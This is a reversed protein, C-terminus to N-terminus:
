RPVAPLLMPPGGIPSAMAGNLEAPFIDPLNQNGYRPTLNIGGNTIERASVNVDAWIEAGSPLKAAYKEITGAAGGRASQLAVRSGRTVVAQLLVRNLSTDVWNHAALFIHSADARIPLANEPVSLAKRIASLENNVYGPRRLLKAIVIAIGNPLANATDFPALGSPDSYKYPDNRNWVYPKQSMPDHVNGLLIDPTTWTGAQPDYTRVGQFTNQGDSIGDHKPMTLMGGRGIAHTNVGFTAGQFSGSTGCTIAANQFASSSVTSASGGTHCGYIQGNMDRDWVTLPTAAGPVYDAFDAIKIDNIQGSANMTFLLDDDDWYLSDYQFDTPQPNANALVASTSGIQFPHGIAGWRYGLSQAYGTKGTQLWPMVVGLIHDEADYSKTNTYTTGSDSNSGFTATQQRGVPDYGFSWGSDNQSCKQAGGCTNGSEYGNPFGQLANFSYMATKPTSSSGSVATQIRTGNAYLSARGSSTDAVLEGRSTYSTQVSRSGFFATGNWAYFGGGLQGGEPNYTIGTEYFGPSNTQQVLGYSTPTGPGTYTFTDATQGTTDSRSTLRRGGTYNFTFTSGGAVALSRLLGDPQYTYALASTLNQSPTSIDLSSRKGDAAYHYTITANQASAVTEYRTTKRGDADYADTITGVGNSAWTVRGDEDYSFQQTTSSLVNFTTQITSGRPDYTLTQCETKANCKQSLFGNQGGGDYTNTVPMLATGTNRYATKTRDLADFETGATDTWVPNGTGTSPGAVSGAENWQPNTVGAPLLEQTKFLGGYAAYSASSGITLPTGQAGQQTLDYLYRTTWPFTYFDSPDTPQQVQVLRDAGDYWKQTVGPGNYHHTESIQNGDLDYQFQTSVSAAAESPSQTSMPSGDPFYTKWNVIASGSIGATKSCASNTLSADDPDGIAVTRNLADYQLVTTTAANNADGRACILNGSADYTLSQQPTRRGDSQDIGEGKVLTPLGYDVGGQPGLEYSISTNYGLPSRINTLEGFLEYSPAPSPYTFVAHASSGNSSCLADPAGSTPPGSATWDGSGAHTAKQDCYAILNNNSDYDFLQTPRFTAMGSATQVTTAPQAVATTNGNPDYAYDTEYGRADTESTLNFNTDWTENLLLWTGTCQQGQSASATCEQTQTPRALSDVVWNTMHGATDRYTPTPVGTTYYETNFAYISNSYGSQLMSTGTPPSVSPDPLIPNANAYDAIQSLTASPVTSGSYGFLLGGGDSMCGSSTSCAANYRPSSAFHMVQGSGMAIYGFGQVPRIGASNNPPRSVSTLNGLADYGYSVYTSSDPFTLTQLLQHGSFDAFTLTATMASETRVDIRAIKDSADARGNVWYYTLTLNTNSNRGVIQYLRGALGAAYGGTLTNYPCTANPNPRYFYYTTGSKKTWLVGCQGDYSLTTHNGAVPVYVAPTPMTFDFRTGDIDFVSWVSSDPTKALHADFTNTWGNGYMGAPKWYFSSADSANVDHTSQSNYTRRFALAIGKHPISMDDDQLLLNGTGVNVMLHGGGPVNEEQYRWWHNIGTGSPGLTGTPGPTWAPTPTPNPTPTPTSPDSTAIGSPEPAPTVPGIGPGGGPTTNMVVRRAAGGNPPTIPQAPPRPTRAPGPQVPVPKPRPSGANQAKRLDAMVQRTHRQAESIVRGIESPRLMPPGQVKTGYLRRGPVTKPPLMPSSARSKERVPEKVPIREPPRLPSGYAAVAAGSGATRLASAAFAPSESVLSVCLLAALVARARVFM